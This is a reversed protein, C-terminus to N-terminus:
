PLSEVGEDAGQRVGPWGDQRMESREVRICGCIGMDRVRGKDMRTQGDVGVGVCLLLGFPRWVVAASVRLGVGETDVVDAGELADGHDSRIGEM